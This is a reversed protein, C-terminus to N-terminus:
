RRYRSFIEATIEESTKERVVPQPPAVDPKPAKPAKPERPKRPARKPKTEPIQQQPTNLQQLYIDLKRDEIMFKKQLLRKEMDIKDNFLPDLNPNIVGDVRNNKTHSFDAIMPTEGKKVVKEIQVRAKNRENRRDLMARRTQAKEEDTKRPRGVKFVPKEEDDSDNMTKLLPEDNEQENEQVNESM